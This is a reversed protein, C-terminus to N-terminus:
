CFVALVQPATSIALVPDSRTFVESQYRWAPGHKPSQEPMVGLHDGLPPLDGHENDTALDAHKM